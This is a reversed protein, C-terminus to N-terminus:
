SVHDARADLENTVQQSLIRGSPALIWLPRRLTARQTALAALCQRVRLCAVLYVIMNRSQTESRRSVAQPIPLSVSMMIHRGGVWLRTMALFAAPRDTPSHLGAHSCASWCQTDLVSSLVPLLQSHSSVFGPSSSHPVPSPLTPLPSSLQHSAQACLVMTM